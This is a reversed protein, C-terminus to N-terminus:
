KKDLGLAKKLDNTLLEAKKKLKEIDEKSEEQLKDWAEM